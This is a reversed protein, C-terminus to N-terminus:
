KKSPKEIVAQTTEAQTTEPLIVPSQPMPVCKLQYAKAYFEDDIDTGDKTVLTAMGNTLGIHVPEDTPSKFWM